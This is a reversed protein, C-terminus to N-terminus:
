EAPRQEAIKGDQEYQEVLNTYQSFNGSYIINLLNNLKSLADLIGDASILGKKYASEFENLDVVKVMGSADVIVDALLDTFVYTDTEKDYDTHIIDCYWYVFRDDADFFKSIKWGKDMVYLSIGKSFAAKPNITDWRTIMTNESHFLIKDQSLPLCEEPILRKRFIETM